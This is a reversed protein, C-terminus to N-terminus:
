ATFALALLVALVVIANLGLVAVEALIGETNKKM